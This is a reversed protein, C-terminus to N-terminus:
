YLIHINIFIIGNKHTYFLTLFQQAWQITIM